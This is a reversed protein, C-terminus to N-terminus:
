ECITAGFQGYKVLSHAGHLRFKIENHIIVLRVWGMHKELSVWYFKDEEMDFNNRHNPQNSLRKLTGMSDYENAIAKPYLKPTAATNHNNANSLNNSKSLIIGSGGGIGTFSPQRKAKRPQLFFLMKKYSISHVHAAKKDFSMSCLILLSIIVIGFVIFNTIINYPSQMSRLFYICCLLFVFQRM